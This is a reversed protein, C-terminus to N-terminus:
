QERQAAAPPRAVRDVFVQKLAAIGVKPLKEPRRLHPNFEAPKYARTKHPDRHVNALMALLASTHAWLQQSKAEGM